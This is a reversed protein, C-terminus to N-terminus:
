ESVQFSESFNFAADPLMRRHSLTINKTCLRRSIVQLYTSFYAAQVPIQVSESM